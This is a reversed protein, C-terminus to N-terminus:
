NSITTPAHLPDDHFASQKRQKIILTSREVPQHPRIRPSQITWPLNDRQLMPVIM